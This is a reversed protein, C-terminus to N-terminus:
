HEDCGWGLAPLARWCGWVWNGAAPSSRTSSLIQGKGVKPEPDPLDSSLLHRGGRPQGQEQSLQKMGGARAAPATAPNLEWSQERQGPVARGARVPFDLRRLLASNNSVFLAQHGAAGPHLSRWSYRCVCERQPAPTHAGLNCLLGSILACSLLANGPLFVFCFM